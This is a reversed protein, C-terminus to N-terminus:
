FDPPNFRLVVTRLLGVHGFLGLARLVSEPRIAVEKM